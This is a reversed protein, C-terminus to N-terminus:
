MSLDIVLRVHSVYFCITSRPWGLIELVVLNEKDAHWKKLSFLTCIQVWCAQNELLRARILCANFMASTYLIKRVFM